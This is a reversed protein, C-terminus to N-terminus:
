TLNKRQTPNPASSCESVVLRRWVAINYPFGCPHSLYYAAHLIAPLVIYWNDAQFPKCADAKRPKPKLGAPTSCACVAVIRVPNSANHECKYFPQQSSASSPSSQSDSVSIFPSRPHIPFVSCIWINLVSLKHM